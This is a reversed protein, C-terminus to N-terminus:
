DVSRDVVVARANRGEETRGEKLMGGEETRGEKLM